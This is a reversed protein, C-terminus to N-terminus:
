PSLTPGTFHQIDIITNSTQYVNREGNMAHRTRKGNRISWEGLEANVKIHKSYRNSEILESM